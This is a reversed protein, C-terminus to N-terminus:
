ATLGSRGFSSECFTSRTSLQGLTKGRPTIHVTDLLLYTNTHVAHLTYM